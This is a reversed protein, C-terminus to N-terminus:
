LTILSAIVVVLASVLKVGNVVIMRLVPHAAVKVAALHSRSAVLSVVIVKVELAERGEPVVATMTRM